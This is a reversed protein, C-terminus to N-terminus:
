TNLIYTELEALCRFQTGGLLYTQSMHWHGFVWAEPQHISFLKDLFKATRNEIIDTPDRGSSTLLSPYLIEPADHTIMFRPRIERYLKEVQAFEEESLEEWPWWNIFPTRRYFRNQYPNDISYAGGMFFTEHQALYGWDGAYNPHDAALNRDDHNGVAFKFNTPFNPVLCNKFGIGLDGVQFILEDKPIKQIVNKLEALMGHCDGVLWINKQQKM